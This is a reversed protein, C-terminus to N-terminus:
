NNQRDDRMEKVLRTLLMISDEIRFLRDQQGHIHEEIFNIKKISNALVEDRVQKEFEEEPNFTDSRDLKSNPVHEGTIREYLEKSLKAFVQTDACTSAAPTKIDGSEDLNRYVDRDCYFTECSECILHPRTFHNLEDNLELDVVTGMLGRTDQLYYFKPHCWINLDPSVFFTNFGYDSFKERLLFGSLQKVVVPAYRATTEIYKCVKMIEPFLRDANYHNLSKMKLDIVGHVNPAISFFNSFLMSENDVFLIVNNTRVGSLGEANSDDVVLTDCGPFSGIKRDNPTLHTGAFEEDTVFELNHGELFFRVKKIDQATMRREPAMSTTHVVPRLSSDTLIQFTM